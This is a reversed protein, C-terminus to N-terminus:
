KKFLDDPTQPADTKAPTGGFLVELAGRSAQAM